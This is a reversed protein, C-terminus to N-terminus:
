AFTPPCKRIRFIGVYQYSRLLACPFKWCRAPVIVTCFFHDPNSLRIRDLRCSIIWFTVQSCKSFKTVQLYVLSYQFLPTICRCSYRGYSEVSCDQYQGRTCSYLVLVVLTSSNYLNIQIGQLPSWQGPPVIREALDSLFVLWLIVLPEFPKFRSSLRAARRM